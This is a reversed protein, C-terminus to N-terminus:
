GNIAGGKLKVDMTHFSGNFNHTVSEVIMQSLVNVDEIALNVGVM